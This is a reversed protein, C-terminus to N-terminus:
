RCRRKAASDGEMKSTPPQKRVAYRPRRAKLPREYIRPRSWRCFHIGNPNSYSPIRAVSWLPLTHLSTLITNKHEWILSKQHNKVSKNSSYWRSLHGLKLITINKETYHDHEFRRRCSWWHKGNHCREQMSLSYSCRFWAHFHCETMLFNLRFGVVQLMSWWINIHMIVIWSNM